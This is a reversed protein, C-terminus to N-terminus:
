LHRRWLANSNPDMVSGQFTARGTGMHVGRVADKKAYHSEFLDSKDNYGTKHM